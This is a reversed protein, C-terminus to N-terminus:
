AKKGWLASLKPSFYGRETGITRDYTMFCVNIAYQCHQIIWVILNHLTEGPGICIQFNYLAPVQELSKRIYVLGANVNTIITQYWIIIDGTSLVNSTLLATELMVLILISNNWSFSMLETRFTNIRTIFIM